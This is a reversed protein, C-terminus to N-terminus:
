DATSFVYGLFAIYAIGGIVSIALLAYWFFNMIFELIPLISTSINFVDIIGCAFTALLVVVLLIGVGIKVVNEFIKM